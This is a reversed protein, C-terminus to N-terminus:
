ESKKEKKESKEELSWGKPARVGLGLGERAEQRGDVDRAACDRRRVAVLWGVLWGVSVRHGVGHWCHSRQDGEDGPRPDAVLARHVGDVEIVRRDRQTVTLSLSVPPASNTSHALSRERALTSLSLPLTTNVVIIGFDRRGRPMIGGPASAAEELETISDRHGSGQM